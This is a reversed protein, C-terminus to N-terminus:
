QGLIKADVGFVSHINIEYDSTILKDTVTNVKLSFKDKIIYSKIDENTTELELESGITDPINEKWAIKIEPLGDAVLYISVSKFFSFDGNLPSNVTLKMSKLNITEVLDARTDNVEFDSQYDTEIDPSMINFPLNVGTASPITVTEDYAMEFQTLKDLEKCGALTVILLLLFGVRIDM